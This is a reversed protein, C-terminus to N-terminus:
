SPSWGLGGVALGRGGCVCVCVCVLIWSTWGQGVPSGVVESCCVLPDAGPGEGRPRSAWPAPPQDSIQQQSYKNKVSRKCCLFHQAKFKLNHMCALLPPTIIIIIIIIIIPTFVGVERLFSVTQRIEQRSKFFFFLFSSSSSSLGM